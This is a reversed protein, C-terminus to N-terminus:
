FTTIFDASTGVAFPSGPMPTLAGTAANLTFSTVTGASGNAVYLFQNAPDISVSRVDAGVAIPFGPLATLAGTIADISYGLLDTGTTAYLYAGTQDSVILTCSPLAYPFGTLSTLAGRTTSNSLDVSFGYIAATNGSANAAYLFNKIGGGFALTSVSSGSPFPSGAVPILDGSGTILFASIDSSGGSNATYLFPGILNIAIAGPGTGTAYSAPSLPTPLGSSQDIQYASLNDSGANAVYLNLGYYLALSRPSSGAVIAPGPVATLAGTGRDVSFASVDNSGSNVAYLFKKDSTGAIALPSAGAYVAPGASAIAGTSADVSFAVITNEVAHTVYSFQGCVVEVNAVNATPITFYGNRVVCRQAPSHPQTQVAVCYSDSSSPLTTAFVFEGNKAIALTERAACGVKYSSVFKELVLQLGQGVLGSVSGGISFTQITVCAVAVSAVNASATGSADTVTCTKGAPFGSATVAYAGGSAVKATFTFATNTSVTQDDGGNLQLVVSQGADLGSVTGGISYTAPPPPPPPTSGGGGCATVTALAIAAFTFRAIHCRAFKMDIEGPSSYPVSDVVRQRISSVAAAHKPPRQAPLAPCRTQPASVGLTIALLRYILVIAQHGM